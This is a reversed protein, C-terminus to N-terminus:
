NKFILIFCYKSFFLLLHLIKLALCTRLQGLVGLVGLVSFLLEENRRTDM